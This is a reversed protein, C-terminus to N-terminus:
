RSYPKNVADAPPLEHQYASHPKNGRQSKRGDGKVRMGATYCHDRIQEDINGEEGERLAGHYPYKDRLYKWVRYARFSLRQATKGMPDHRGENSKGKGPQGAVNATAVNEGKETPHHYQLQKENPAQHRFCFPLCQFFNFHCHYHM